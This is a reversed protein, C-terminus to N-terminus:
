NEFISGVKCEQFSDWETMTNYNKKDTASNKNAIINNFVKADINM